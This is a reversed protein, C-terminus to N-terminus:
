FRHIRGGVKEGLKRILYYEGSHMGGGVALRVKEIGEREMERLAVLMKVADEKPILNEEALMVLHAKDFMQYTYLVPLEQESSVAKMNPLMEELLLIGPTRHGRYEEDKQKKM